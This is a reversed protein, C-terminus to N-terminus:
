PMRRSTQVVRLSTRALFFGIPFAFFSWNSRRPCTVRDGVLIKIFNKRIKGSIHCDIIQESDELKVQARRSCPLM